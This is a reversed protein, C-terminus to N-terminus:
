VGSYGKMLGLKDVATQYDLMGRSYQEYVFSLWFLIPANIGYKAIVDNKMQLETKKKM